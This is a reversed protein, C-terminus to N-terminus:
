NQLRIMSTPSRMMAHQQYVVVDDVVVVVVIFQCAFRINKFFFRSISVVTVRTYGHPYQVTKQCLIACSVTKQKQLEESILLEM